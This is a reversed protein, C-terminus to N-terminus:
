RSEGTTHPSAEAATLSLDLVTLYLEEDPSLLRRDALHRAIFPHLDSTGIRARLGSMVTGEQMWLLSALWPDSLIETGFSAEAHTAEMSSAVPGDSCATVAVALIPLLVWLTRARDVVM